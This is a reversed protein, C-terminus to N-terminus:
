DWLYSPRSIVKCGRFSSFLHLLGGHGIYLMRDYEASRRVLTYLMSFMQLPGLNKWFLLFFTNPKKEGVM